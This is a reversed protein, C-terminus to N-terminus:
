PIRTRAPGAEEDLREEVFPPRESPPSEAGRQDLFDISREAEGFNGNKILSVTKMAQKVAEKPLMGTTKDIHGLLSIGLAELHANQKIALLLLPGDKNTLAASFHSANKRLPKELVKGVVSPFVGSSLDRFHLLKEAALGRYTYNKPLAEQFSRKLVPEFAASAAIIKDLRKVAKRDDNQLAKVYETRLKLGVSRDMLNIGAADAAARLFPDGTLDSRSSAAHVKFGERRLQADFIATKQLLRALTRSKDALATLAKGDKREAAKALDSLLKQRPGHIADGEFFRMDGPSLLARTSTQLAIAARGAVEPDKSTAIAQILQPIAARRSSKSLEVTAAHRKHYDDHGLQKVLDASSLDKLATSNGAATNNDPGTGKQQARMM